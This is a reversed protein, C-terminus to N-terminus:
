TAAADLVDIAAAYVVELAREVPKVDAPAQWRLDALSDGVVVVSAAEIGRAQALALIGAIEMEVTKVGEAQYRQVEERTERYPADTTWTAGLQFPQGRQEMAAALRAMLDSSADVYKAPPLYHHSVGEDRLARQCIVVQGPELGPQLAGGWVISILRRTGLAILEEALSVVSPAGIGINTLVGVRGRTKKAVYLDGMLRAVRRLPIRRRLREPLGRQLCIM